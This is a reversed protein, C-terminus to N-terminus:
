AINEKLTQKDERCRSKISESYAIAIAEEIFNLSNDPDNLDNYLKIAMSRVESAFDDKLKKMKPSDSLGIHDLKKVEESIDNIGAIIDDLENELDKVKIDKLTQEITKISTM